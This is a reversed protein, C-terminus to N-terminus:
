ALIVEERVFRLCIIEPKDEEGFHALVAEKVNHKLEDATEAQTFIAHGVAKAVYGGEPEEEVMFIIEKTM